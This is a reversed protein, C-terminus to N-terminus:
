PEVPEQDAGIKDRIACLANWMARVRSFREEPETALAQRVWDDVSPPLDPRLRHLSPRPATTVRHLIEKLGEGSFPPSGSLARFAVAGLSYVDIRHDVDTVGRWLEPAIYSPSGAVLGAQTVSRMRLFKAFGFDLLRVGGATLVFLNAPKLDRHLIGSAHAVELTAVVPELMDILEGLGLRQGSQELTLLYAEFDKGDLLETILCFSGDDAWAQHMVRVAATGRLVTLAHAERMMRERWAVDRASADKLIKIAVEDGHKMDLARYVVGQGGRDLHGLLRYRQAIVEGTRDPLPEDSM